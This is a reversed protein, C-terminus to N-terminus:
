AHVAEAKGTIQEIERNIRECTDRSMALAGDAAGLAYIAMAHEPNIGAATCFEALIKQSSEPVVLENTKSM